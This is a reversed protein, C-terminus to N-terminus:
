AALDLLRSSGRVLVRRGLETLRLQGDCPEILDLDTLQRVALSGPASYARGLRLRRLLEWQDATLDYDLEPAM